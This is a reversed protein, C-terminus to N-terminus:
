PRVLMVSCKAHGTLKGGNSPWFYDTVKPAHSAMVVLDAETEDVARLLAEDVDTRPDHAVATHATARLGHKDAEGEVFTGLKRAFAEPDHAVKGPATPTVGVYVLQADYLKGLDAAAGLARTQTDPHALDVPVMIRKFM